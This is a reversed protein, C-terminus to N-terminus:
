EQRLAEIPDVRTARRAPLWCALLSIGLVLMTVATYVLLNSPDLGYLLVALLRALAFSAVLGFTLGILTPRLGARSVVRLVDFRSAGLAVRIGVDRTQQRVSYAVVGYVGIMALLLAVIGQAGALIAGIRLPLFAFAATRLHGDMTRVNFIPLEPDLDAFVRRLPPALALPDDTATRVHLTAMSAYAQAFPLCVYPRPAEALLVYKGNGSVGVVEIPHKSSKWHFQKGLPDQGPWLRDALTQNVIAVRRSSDRDQETFSRGRLLTVGMTQFYGPDIANVGAQVDDSPGSADGQTVRDSAVVVRTDFYTDFPVSSAIAVAEVGPLARVRDLLEDWFRQGKEEEYGQLGLDVSAMLLHDTRFGLDFSALQQLSRVFLGGCILVVVCVAIQALVLTSRLLHRKRGPSGAGGKLITYVDVQTARLAPVFGTLIGAAVSVLLTFLVPLWDWRQDPYVPVDGTPATLRSLL